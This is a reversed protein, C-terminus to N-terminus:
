ETSSRSYAVAKMLLIALFALNLSVLVAYNPWFKGGYWSGALFVFLGGLHSCVISKDKSNAYLAYHPAMSIGHLIISILLFPYLHISDIYLQNGLLSFIYPLAMWSLIAFLVSIAITQKLLKKVLIHATNHMGKENLNILEPLAFSFLASELFITLCGAIGILLLYPAVAEISLFHEILYRDFTLIGRFALTGLLFTLSLGVGKKVWGWDIALIWGYSHLRKLRWTAFLAAIIGATVWMFMISDLNRTGPDTHMLLVMVASWAGQRVLLVITSSLQESLVILLRSMEQNFHELVLVPFFWWVLHEPWSADALFFFAVPSFSLYLVVSLGLQGKFLKGWEPQPKKLIERAMYFHFDIGVVYLAYSVTAAFIGFYAVKLPDLYRALFFIFLFRLVLNIAQLATNVLQNSKTSL